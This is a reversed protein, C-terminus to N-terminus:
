EDQKVSFLCTANKNPCELFYTHGPQLIVVSPANAAPRLLADNASAIIEVLSIEGLDYIAAPASCFAAQVQGPAPARECSGTSEADDRSAGRETGPTLNVYLVNGQEDRENTFRFRNDGNCEITQQQQPFGRAQAVTKFQSVYDFVLKPAPVLAIDGLSLHARRDPVVTQKLTTCGPASIRIVYEIPALGSFAFEGNAPVQQSAALASVCAESEFGSDAWMPPAPAVILKVTATPSHAPGSIRGRIDATEAPPARKLVLDPVHVMAPTDRPSLDLPEFGHARFALKRSPHVAAAFWGDDRLKTRTVIPTDDMRDQLHVRGVVIQGAGHWNQDVWTQKERQAKQAVLVPVDAMSNAPSVPLSACGSLLLGLFLVLYHKM